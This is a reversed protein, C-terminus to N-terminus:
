QTDSGIQSQLYNEMGIKEILGLQKELFYTHDMESDDLQKVLIDRTDFDNESECVEIVSKLNNVTRYEMELDNKLMEEVDSGANVAARNNFDPKGELFLMRDVMQQAHETEEQMEHNLREYLNNLGMDKYIGSHIFYQDRAALENDILMQLAEIVKASGKM